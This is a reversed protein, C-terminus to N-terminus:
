TQSVNSERKKVDKKRKQNDKKTAMSNEIDPIGTYVGIYISQGDFLSFSLICSLLTADSM